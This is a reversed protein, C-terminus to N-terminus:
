VREQELKGSGWKALRGAQRCSRGQAGREEQYGCLVQELPGKNRGAREWGKKRGTGLWCRCMRTEMPDKGWGLGVRWSGTPCVRKSARSGLALHMTKFVLGVWLFQHFPDEGELGALLEAPFMPKRRHKKEKWVLSVRTGLLGAGERQGQWSFCTKRGLMEWWRQMRMLELGISMVKWIKRIDPEEGSWGAWMKYTDVSGEADGGQM